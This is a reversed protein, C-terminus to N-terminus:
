AVLVRVPHSPPGATRMVVRAAGDLGIRSGPIQTIEGDKLGRLEDDHLMPILRDAGASIALVRGQGDIVQVQMSPNVQIVETLSHQDILKVVGAATDSAEANVARLLAFNLVGILLVGGAALGATVVIVSLWLLRARLSFERPRRVDAARCATVPAACPRWGSAASRAASTAWTSRWRTPRPRSPPM